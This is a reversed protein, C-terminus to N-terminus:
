QGRGKSSREEKRGAYYGFMTPIWLYFFVGLPLWWEFQGIPPLAEGVNALALGVWFAVYASCCMKEM